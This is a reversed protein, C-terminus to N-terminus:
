LTISGGHRLLGVHTWPGGDQSWNLDGYGDGLSHNSTLLLQITQASGVFAAWVRGSVGDRFQYNHDFGGTNRASITIENM